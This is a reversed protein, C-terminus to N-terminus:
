GQGRRVLKNQKIRKKNTKTTEKRSRIQNKRNVKEKDLGIL